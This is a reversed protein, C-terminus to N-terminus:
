AAARQPTEGQDAAGVQFFRVQAEMALSQQELSKAAAAAALQSPVGPKPTTSVSSGAGLGPREGARGEDQHV